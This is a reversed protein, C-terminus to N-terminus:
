GTAPRVARPEDAAGRVADADRPRADAARAPGAPQDAPGCGPNDANARDAGARQRGATPLRRDAGADDDAPLPAADAGLGADADAVADTARRPPHPCLWHIAHKRGSATRRVMMDP